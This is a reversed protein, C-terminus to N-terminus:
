GTPMCEMFNFWTLTLTMLLKKARYTASYNYSGEYGFLRTLLVSAYYEVKNNLCIVDSDDINDERVNGSLLKAKHGHERLYKLLNYAIMGTSGEHSNVNFILVKM